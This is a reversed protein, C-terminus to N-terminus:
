SQAQTLAAELSQIFADSTDTAGTVIDVDARQSQIAEQVLIPMARQNIAQSRSRHNPFQLFTVDSLQGNTVVAQVQVTGWHADTSSGTYTGDQLGGSAAADTRSSSSSSSPSSPSPRSSTVPQRTTTATPVVTSHSSPPSTGPTTTATHTPSSSATFGPRSSAAASGIGAGSSADSRPQPPSRDSPVVLGATATPVALAITTPQSAMHTRQQVAFLAFLVIVSASLLAKKFARWM